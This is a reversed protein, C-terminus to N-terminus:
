FSMGPDHGDYDLMSLFWHRTNQLNIVKLCLPQLIVTEESFSPM